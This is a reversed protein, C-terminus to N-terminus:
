IGLKEVHFGWEWFSLPKEWFYKGFTDAYIYSYVCVSVCVHADEVRESEGDTCMFEWLLVLGRVREGELGWCVPVSLCLQIEWMEGVAENVHVAM